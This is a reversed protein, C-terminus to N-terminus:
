RLDQRRVFVERTLMLIAAATPIALLAGVVGMLAAGVLAAIVTVAGPVDVSKSMVRPYIVYNEIQQYAVYFVVCALGIKPDEAFAIATVVVAGITAGIMPIVDLLAVVFALAVAYKGLGVAFLFVLSSLGACTAVIFAGSVYAGVSEVIRNGLRSVRDRRSAPALRYLANKTTELSSLFYLTLVLIIFANFLAGLVALGIGLAGGFLTGVFDGGTVYDRAKDIIDYEADLDEVTANHQLQDFWTPAQDTISKVQDTIVPVIAVLFLVVAIVVCVIVVIVAYGRRLGRREFFSVAPNLGAALFLSVLILVLTNGIAQINTLLWFALLAGTAGVFGVFFPAKHDLPPGPEGLYALGGDAGEDGPTEEADVVDTAKTEGAAPAADTEDTSM